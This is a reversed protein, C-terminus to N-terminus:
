PKGMRKQLDSIKDLLAANGPALERSREYVRYAGDLQGMKAYADGLHELIIPDKNDTLAVARELEVAAQEYLGRRYFVWGLSDVYYGNDPEAGLARRILQESDELEIGREALIYGVFNLAAPNEPELALADRGYRLASEFHGLEQHAMALNFVVDAEHPRLAHGAELHQLASEFDRLQSYAIGLLVNCRYEDAPTVATAASLVARVGDLAVASLDLRGDVDRLEQIMVGVLSVHASCDDPHKRVAEEFHARAEAPRQRRLALEGLLADVGRAGRLEALPELVIQATELDGLQLLLWGYIYQQRPDLVGDAYRPALLQTADEFRRTDLLLDLLTSVTAEQTPEQELVEQYVVIAEDLRGDERYLTALATRAAQMNPDFQIAKRYELEADHRQGLRAYCDALSLHTAARYPELAAARQLDDLAEELRGEDLLLRGRMWWANVLLSDAALAADLKRFAPSVQGGVIHLRAALLHEQASLDFRAEFEQLLAGAEQVAGLQLYQRTLGLRLIPDEPYLRVADTFRELARRSKGAERLYVGEAYAVLAAERAAARQRFREEAARFGECGM